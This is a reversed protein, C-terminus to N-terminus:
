GTPWSTIRALGQAYPPFASGQGASYIGVGALTPRPPPTSPSATCAALLAAAGSALMLRRHSQM